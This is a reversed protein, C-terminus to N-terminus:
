LLRSSTQNVPLTSIINQHSLSQKAHTDRSMSLGSKEHDGPIGFAMLKTWRKHTDHLRCETEASIISEDFTRARFESREGELGGDRNM